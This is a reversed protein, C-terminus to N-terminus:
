FDFQAGFRLLRGQLVNTPRQWAAGFTNNHGIVASGNFLNYVDVNARVRHRQWVNFLKSVRFDIQNLRSGYMTGPAILPVTATGNAGSALNRGLSPAIDANRATYSATIQPGPLSQLTASTQIGWPLPYVGLLKVQTHFPPRVDCNLLAQPSDVVFCSETRVRGTSTGGQLVIGRPLRANLSLDVGDYIERQAGFNKALTIRNDVQGFKAPRVDYLGCIDYGGGGPLRSDMPATVCFPDFDAPTVELNDTTRFNGYWRRFYGANASVRPLLEHQISGSTEWNYGRTTRADDAYRTTIRSLGFNVNSIPGLENEQVVFDGNLDNWTRTANTVIASAPNAARTFATLNPGELYRGVTVKVATRGTGFLDYAVGLRPSVDKWNPVDEVADFQLNRTPVNPGPGVTQAPVYSNFYDFRVGMNLTFRRVTWQDQAFVGVNAKTVEHLSLPTAFVTVRSPQGNLLQLTMGNNVVDQTTHASLRMFTVGVKAAHSGTVYTTSFRTNFNHSGNKGFTGSYNGWRINTSLETYSPANPDVGPQLFTGFNKNGFAVGAEFLLRGTVPSQWGAQSLYSPISKSAFTAEPSYTFQNCCSYGYYPRDQQANQHQINIKNTPSVQWTLRLSQNGNREINEAQRGLDPTYSLGGPTLNYYMGAVSQEAAWTRVSGYFWLRDRVVPGGLAPNVDYIRNVRPVSVLGRAVLNETLNDSQLRHNTFAVGFTGQLSNGGEKPIINTRIGGLESEASMGATEFSIEQVTADNTAIAVFNGGRGQGNNYHMGDHLQQQEQLRSGHIAIAASSFASGGVDQNNTIVGPILVGLNAATRAGVPISDIVDRTMVRQQVVNQSDVTPAQGSVTVTEEIAGVRMEANVTATFSSTLELGERRVTNFGPLTFTVVYAGPRLDVILYRGQGDTVATRAREILAPSSAEVTVGPLVGGTADRVVGGIGSGSQAFAGTPLLLLLTPLVVRVHLLRMM